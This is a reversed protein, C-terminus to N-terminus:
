QGMIGPSEQLNVVIITVTKRRVKELGVARQCDNTQERNRLDTKTINM